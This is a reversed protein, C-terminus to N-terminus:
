LYARSSSSSIIGSDTKSTLGSIITSLKKSKKALELLKQSNSKALIHGDSDLDNRISLKLMNRRMKLCKCCKEWDLNMKPCDDKTCELENSFKLIM